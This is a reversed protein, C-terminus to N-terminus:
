GCGKWGKGRKIGWSAWMAGLIAIGTLFVVLVIAISQFLSFSSAYFAMYIIAFILWGFFIIISVAVRLALGPPTERNESQNM